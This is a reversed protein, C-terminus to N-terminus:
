RAKSLARVRAELLDVQEADGSDYYGRLQGEGDVVVLSTRHSVQTGFPAEEDRVVPLFFRKILLERVDEGAGTLFTWRESDAGYREAYRALVEPTDLGPDVSLSVLHVDTDALRGQLVSMTRTVAPCPGTCTTYINSLVWVKGALDAQTFTAGTQDVLSWEGVTGFVAPDSARAALTVGGGSGADGPGAGDPGTGSRGCGALVLPLLVPLCVLAVGSVGSAASPHKIVTM